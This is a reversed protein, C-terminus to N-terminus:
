QVHYESDKPKSAYFVQANVILALANGLITRAEALQVDAYSEFDAKAVIDRAAKAAMEAGVEIRILQPKILRDYDTLTLKAEM